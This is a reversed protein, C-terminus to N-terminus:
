KRKVKEELVVMIHYNLRGEMVNRVELVDQEIM